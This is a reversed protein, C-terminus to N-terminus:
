FLIKATFVLASNKGDLPDHWLLSLDLIDNIRKEIALMGYAATGKLKRYSFFRDGTQYNGLILERKLQEYIQQYVAQPANREIQGPILYQSM